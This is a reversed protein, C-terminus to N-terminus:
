GAWICKCFYQSIPVVLFYKIKIGLLRHTLLDIKTQCLKQLFSLMCFHWATFIWFNQRFDSCFTSIYKQGSLLYIKSLSIQSGSPFVETRRKRNQISWIEWVVFALFFCNIWRETCLQCSFNELFKLNKNWEFM